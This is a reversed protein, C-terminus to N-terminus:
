TNMDDIFVNVKHVEIGSAEEVTFSVKHVISNVAATINTGYSVKIHLDIILGGEKDARIAVGRRQRFAKGFTLASITSQFTNVSCVDAVGFCGTVTHRVLQILYGESVSIKGIHNEVTVM